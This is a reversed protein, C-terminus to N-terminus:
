VNYRMCEPKAVKAECKLDIYALKEKIDRETENEADRVVTYGRKTPINVVDTKTISNFTTLNEENFTTLKTVNTATQM